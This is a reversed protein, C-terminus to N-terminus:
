QALKRRIDATTLFGIPRNRETSIALSVGLSDMLTQVHLLTDKPQVRVHIKNDLLTPHSSLGFKIVENLAKEELERKAEVGSLASKELAEITFRDLLQRQLVHEITVGKERVVVLFWAHANRRDLQTLRTFVKKLPDTVRFFDRQTFQRNSDKTVDAVTLGLLIERPTPEKMQIMSKTTEKLNESGFYFAIVAGVWVGSVALFTKLLDARADFVVKAATSNSMVQSPMNWTFAWFLFLASLYTGVLVITAIYGRTSQRLWEPMKSL